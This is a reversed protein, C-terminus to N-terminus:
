FDLRISTTVASGHFDIDRQAQSEYSAYMWNATWKIGPALTRAYSLVMGKVENEDSTSVAGAVGPTQSCGGAATVLICGKETGVRGNWSVANAGWSYMAGFNVGYGDASYGPIQTSFLTTTAGGAAAASTTTNGFMFPMGASNELHKYGVAVRLGGWDVRTGFGFERVPDALGRQQGGTALTPKEASIYGFGAGIKFDGINLSDYNVSFSWMDHLLDKAPLRANTDAAGGGTTTGVTGNGDWLQNRYEPAYSIGGQFGFFRPSVYIIKSSDNNDPAEIFAARAASITPSAIFTTPAPIWGPSDYTLNQGAFTVLGNGYGATMLEAVPDENGLILQGFGNRLIVYAEDYLQGPSGSVEMEFVARIVLGNDLRGDGIIHIESETRQDFQGDPTGASLPVATNAGKVRTDPRQFAYGVTEEVYGGLRLQVPNTPKTQAQADNGIVFMGAAVLASTMLLGKKM